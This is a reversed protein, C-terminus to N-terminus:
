KYSLSNLVMINLKELRKTYIRQAVYLLAYIICHLEVIAIGLFIGLLLVITNIVLVIDQAVGLMNMTKQKEELREKNIRM